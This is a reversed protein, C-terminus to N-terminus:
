IKVDVFKTLLLRGVFVRRPVFNSGHRREHARTDSYTTFGGIEMNSERHVSMSLYEVASPHSRMPKIKIWKGAGKKEKEEFYVLRECM